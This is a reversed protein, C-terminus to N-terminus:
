RGSRNVMALIGFIILLVLVILLFDGATWNTM